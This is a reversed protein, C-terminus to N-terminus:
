KVKRHCSPHRTRIRAQKTAAREFTVVDVKLGFFLDHAEMQVAEHKIKDEQKASLLSRM